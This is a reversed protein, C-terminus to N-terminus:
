GERRHLFGNKTFRFFIFFFSCIITATLGSIGIKIIRPHKGKIAEVELINGNIIMGSIDYKRKLDQKVYVPLNRLEIIRGYKKLFYFKNNHRVRVNLICLSFNNRQEFMKEIYERSNIIRYQDNYYHFGSLIIIVLPLSIKAWRLHDSFLWQQKNM